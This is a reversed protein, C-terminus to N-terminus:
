VHGVCKDCWDQTVDDQEIFLEGCARCPKLKSIPHARKLFDDWPLSGVFTDGNVFHHGAPKPDSCASCHAFVFDCEDSPLQVFYLKDDSKGCAECIGAETPVNWVAGLHANGPGNEGDGEDYTAWTDLWCYTGPEPSVTKLFAEIYKKHREPATFNAWIDM